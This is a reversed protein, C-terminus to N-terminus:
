FILGFPVQSFFLVLQTVAKKGGLPHGYCPQVSQLGKAQVPVTCIILTGKIFHLCKQKIMM